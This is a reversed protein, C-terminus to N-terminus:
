KRSVLSWYLQNEILMFELINTIITLHIVIGTTPYLLVRFIYHLIKLDVIVKVNSPNKIEKNGSLGTM